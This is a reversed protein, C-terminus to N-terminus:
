DLLEALKQELAAGRLNSAIIRGEKDLLLNSPISEIGYQQVVSSNWYKLDSVHTWKGLKDDEIGKLWADRTKDLSVQFIDFGKRHYKEYAKVLNPNEMRCPGCWAAWFDLLVVSGRTSSLRITDGNPDPLAIEPAFADAPSGPSSAGQSILNSALETVQEHLSKVPEYDPYLISLASDVKMFYKLDKEPHLIYEGPAVQAWLAVLSVLSSINEDIYSKTFSNIDNLYTQALSDLRDMVLPLDPSEINQM